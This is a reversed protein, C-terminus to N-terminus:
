GEEVEYEECDDEDAFRVGAEAEEVKRAASDNIGHWNKDMMGRMVKVFEAFDLQKNGDDDAASLLAQLDKMRDGHMPVIGMILKMFEDESLDGSADTDFMAFVHRFEKIEERSFKSSQIAEQEKTLNVALTRDDIVRMMHIYDMWDLMGDGNEDVEALLERLKKHTSICENAGPFLEALLNALQKNSIFGTSKPDYKHFGKKIRKLEFDSFGLHERVKLVVKDRFGKILDAFDWLKLEKDGVSVVIEALEESGPMYGLQLLVPRLENVTLLGNNNVDFQKFIRRVNKIEHERFRAVLKVFEHRDLQGSEDLDYEHLIDQVEEMSAPHGLWRLASSLEIGGIGGSSDSDFKDFMANVDAHEARTFGESSRFEELLAYLDEFLLEEKDQLGCRVRCEAIAEPRAAM